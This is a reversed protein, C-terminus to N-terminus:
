RCRDGLCDCSLVRVIKQMKFIVEKWVDCLLKLVKGGGDLNCFFFLFFPQRLYKFWQKKRGIKSSRKKRLERAPFQRLRMGATERILSFNIFCACCFAGRSLQTPITAQFNKAMRFYLTSEETVFFHRHLFGRKEGHAM